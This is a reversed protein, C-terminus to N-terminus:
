AKEDEVAQHDISFIDHGLTKQLTSSYPSEVRTTTRASITTIAVSLANIQEKYCSAIRTEGMQGLPCWETLEISQGMDISVSNCERKIPNTELRHLQGVMELGDELDVYGLKHVSIVAQDIGASGRAINYAGVRSHSVRPLRGM